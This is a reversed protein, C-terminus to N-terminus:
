HSKNLINSRLYISLPINLYLIIHNKKNNQLNDNSFNSQPGKAILMLLNHTGHTMCAFYWLDHSSQESKNTLIDGLLPNFFEYLFAKPRKLMNIFTSCTTSNFITFTYKDKIKEVLCQSVKPYKSILSSYKEFLFTKMRPNNMKELQIEIQGEWSKSKINSIKVHFIYNINLTMIRPMKM